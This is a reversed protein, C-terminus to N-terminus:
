KTMHMAFMKQWNGGEGQEYIVWDLENDSIKKLEHKLTEEKGM